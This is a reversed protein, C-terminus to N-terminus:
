IRFEFVSCLFFPFFFFWTCMIWMSGIVLHCIGMLSCWYPFWYYACLYIKMRWLGVRKPGEVSVQSLCDVLLYVLSGDLWLGWNIGWNWYSISPLLVLDVRLHIIIPKILHYSSEWLNPQLLFCMPSLFNLNLRTLLSHVHIKAVESEIHCFNLWFIQTAVM